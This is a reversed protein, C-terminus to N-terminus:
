IIMSKLVLFHHSVLGTENKQMYSDLKVLVMYQPSEKRWQIDKGGQDYILQGCTCPNIERNEVPNWKDIHRNKHQYQVTKIITAKYYLRFDPLRSGGARKKKRWITKAIQPDKTDGYM